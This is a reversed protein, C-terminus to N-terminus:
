KKPKPVYRVRPRKKNTSKTQGARKAGGPLPPANSARKKQPVPPRKGNKTPAKRAPAASKKLTLFKRDYKLVGTHKGKKLQVETKMYNYPNQKVEIIAFGLASAEASPVTIRQTQDKTNLITVSQSNHYKRTGILVWDDLDNPIPEDGPGVKPKDTVISNQWLHYYRSHNYTAPPKVAFLEATLGLFLVLFIKQIM